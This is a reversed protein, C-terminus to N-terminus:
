EHGCVCVCVCVCMCLVINMCVCISSLLFFTHNRSKIIKHCCNCIWRYYIALYLYLDDPGRYMPDKEYNCLKTDVFGAKRIPASCM